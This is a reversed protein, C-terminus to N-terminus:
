QKNQLISNRMAWIEGMNEYTKKYLRFYKQYKEYKGLDPTYIKDTKVMIEVAHGFDRYLGQAVGNNMAAGKAGLEKGKVTVVEKGLVDAFMQCWTESSTGGGCLTIKKVPLPMHDYCDAMAYAVGEYCARILDGVTNRVSIGTFSARANPDTFPAREGGALLYPHYLIGNAGIPTEAVMKEAYDYVGMGHKEAQKEVTEGLIGLLWELNPTGALSAMLRLWKGKRGHFVTMGAFIDDKCPEGIVMEHLAATGIISCCCGDEIVGAGVACAAVDMPGGTVLVESTLGLEKVMEEKLMGKNEQCSLVAPYKERYKELGYYGFLEEDYEGTKMDLFILSQDTTDTSVIGTLRAFLADKLHLCYKSKELTKPMHVAMWKLICPQNGTFVRTGAREFVKRATGDASWGQFQEGARGDCFCCGKRVPQMNEDFLWLGDGQATIGIGTISGVPFKEAVECICEKAKQWIEEFDEEFWAEEECCATLGREAKAMEEGLENFAVAKIGSTRSDLGIISKEM